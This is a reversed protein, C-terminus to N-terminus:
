RSLFSKVKKHGKLSGREINHFTSMAEIALNSLDNLCNCELLAVANRMITKNCKDVDEHKKATVDNMKNDNNEANTNDNSDILKLYSIEEESM